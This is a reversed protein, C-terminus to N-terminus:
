KIKCRKILSIIDYQGAIQIFLLSAVVGSVVKIGLSLCYNSWDVFSLMNLVFFVLCCNLFPLFLQKYMKLLSSNTVKCYLAYFSFAFCFFSSITWAAAISEITNWVYAAVIFGSITVLTNIVGVVFLQKTANCAQYISGTTSLIIQLPVSLCLIKFTLVSGIWSNGYLIVIIEKSCMSLIIGLPFGITAIFSIIKNYKVSMTEKDDQLTSLVPQLVPNIVSTLTGMPLQMLRYSKEYYGLSTASMMRGIILKDLNRSFYNIFEFLFQYVSYSFIRKLPEFQINFIFSLKYYHRNYVFIGIATLLPSILLAYAGGGRCAVYISLIGSVFQLTLTRKAIQKFRRDKAMLANPVMNSSAFFLLISLIKCIQVLQPSNYFSAIHSSLLFFLISFLLGLLISFSYISNLDKKSLDNRQIIAPGIGITCFMQLFQIIVMAIAIVGFEKPEILRALIMSVILSMVIGSYKEIASWFLGNIMEQRLSAM